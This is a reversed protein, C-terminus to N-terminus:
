NYLKKKLTVIQQTQQTVETKIVQITLESKPSVNSNDNSNDETLNDDFSKDDFSNDDDGFSSDETEIQSGSSRYIM